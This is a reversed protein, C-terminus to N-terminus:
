FATKDDSCGVPRYKSPVDTVFCHWTGEQSREWTMTAKGSILVASASNGFTGVVTNTDNGVLPTSVQPFGQGALPKNSTGQEAGALLTSSTAALNCDGIALDKDNKAQSIIALKNDNMCSDVVTKLAGMEGMLRSVQSKIVYTQYQPLAVAALIGIIAVVIMLEILTFGNQIKRM